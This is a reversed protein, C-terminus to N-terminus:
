TWRVGIRQLVGGGPTAVLGPVPIALAVVGRWATIVMGLGRAWREALGRREVRM